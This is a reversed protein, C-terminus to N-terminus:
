LQLEDHANARRPGHKYEVPYVRGDPHFEVVDAKGTLGLRASWLPLGREVRVGDEWATLAEDHTRRHAERGRLTFVNEDFVCEVHILGCQRPCYSYHEIASILVRDEDAWMM